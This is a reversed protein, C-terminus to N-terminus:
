ANEEGMINGESDYLEFDKGLIDKLSNQENMMEGVETLRYDVSNGGYVPEIIEDRVFTEVVFNKVIEGYRKQVDEQTWDRDPEESLIYFYVFRNAEVQDNEEPDGSFVTVELAMNLLNEPTIDGAEILKILYEKKM